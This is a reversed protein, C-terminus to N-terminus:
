LCEPKTKFSGEVLKGEENIMRWGNTDKFFSIENGFHYDWKMNKNSEIM